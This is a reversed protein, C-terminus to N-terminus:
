RKTLTGTKVVPRTVTMQGKGGRKPRKTKKEEGQDLSIEKKAL